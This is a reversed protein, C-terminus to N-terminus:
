LFLNTRGYKNWARQLIQNGHKNKRLDLRHNYFRFKFNNTSGIYLKLNEYESNKYISIM